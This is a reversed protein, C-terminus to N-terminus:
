SPPSPGSKTAAAANETLQLWDALWARAELVGDHNISSFRTLKADAGVLQKVEFARTLGASRSL